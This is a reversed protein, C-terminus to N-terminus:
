VINWRKSAEEAARALLQRVEDDGTQQFDDYYMGVAGFALPMDVCVVDDAIEALMGCTEPSGVPAAVVIKAPHQARLANVAASMTAGTALGDDVVLVTKGDISPRPREDRYAHERRRIEALERQVVAHFEETSVGVLDLLQRDVITTGDPAVAGMALEEHGPVGLKRVAYVDMPAHLRTAIEYAVPVGGRPLALVIVDPRDAYALLRQALERGAHARNIFRSSM